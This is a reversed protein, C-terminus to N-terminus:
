RLTKQERGHYKEDGSEAKINRGVNEPWYEM